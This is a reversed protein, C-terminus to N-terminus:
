GFTWFHLIVVQGRLDALSMRGGNSTNLWETGSLAPAQAQLRVPNAAASGPLLLVLFAALAHAAALKGSSKRRM